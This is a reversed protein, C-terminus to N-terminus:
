HYRDKYLNPHGIIWDHLEQIMKPYDSVKIDLEKRTDILSKDHPNSETQIIEIEKKQFVSKFLQLLEFKSIKESPALHYLGTLGQELAQEVAKALEYTTVGSWYVNSFGKVPGKQAMFWHFLGEGNEKLEPGIISTRITLDKENIIEGLAKSQAYMGQGDKLDTEVYDGKKGSFVCDTSLHVIKINNTQGLRELVHPFYSNIYVARDPYKKSFSILAGICNIIIDPKHELVAQEAKKIDEVDILLSSADLKQRYAINLVSYKNLSGLYLSVIHGAMGTSGFIM